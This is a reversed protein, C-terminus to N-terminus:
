RCFLDFEKLLATKNHPACVPDELAIAFNGAIRYAIFGDKESSFFLLKDDGLKFYDVASHGYSHLLSQAKEKASPLKSGTHLYPRTLSYLLFLWAMVGLVHFSRLFEIGFRTLPHLGEPDLLFFGRVANAISQQWSFDLGFHKKELFYFGIFGYILVAIFSLIAVAIGTHLQASNSKSRYQKKTLLLSTFVILAVIAEEYDLAKILHGPVSLLSIVLALWWASRRGKVLFAATILLTLGIFLVFLNTAHIAAVPVFSRVFHLRNMVPPTVVSLINIIGLAFILVAPFVRLFFEKGKVLFAMVSCFLPLWFEFFRYTFAIALAQPAAYGFRSLIYVISLEIAGLGKLFPSAVMLLISVIYAIGAAQLSPTTGVALMCLYLHLIGCIEVGVSSAISFYFDNKNISVNTFKYLQLSLRPFRQNLLVYLRGKKQVSNFVAVTLLM